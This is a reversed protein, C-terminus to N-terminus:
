ISVWVHCNAQWISWFWITVLLRWIREYRVPGSVCDTGSSCENCYKKNNSCGDEIIWSNCFLLIADIAFVAPTPGGQTRSRRLNWDRVRSIASRIPIILAILFSNVYRRYNFASSLNLTANQKKVTLTHCHSWEGKTSWSWLPSILVSGIDGSLQRHRLHCFVLCDCPYCTEPNSESSIRAM